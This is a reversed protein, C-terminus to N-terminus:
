VTLRNQCETIQSTKRLFAQSEQNLDSTHVTRVFQSNISTAWFHKRIQMRKIKITIRYKLLGCCVVFVQGAVFSNPEPVLVSFRARRTPGGKLGQIIRPLFAVGGEQPRAAEGVGPVRM